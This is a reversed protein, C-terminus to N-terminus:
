ADRRAAPCVLTTWDLATWAHSELTAGSGRGPAAPVVFTGVQM